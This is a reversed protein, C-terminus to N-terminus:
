SYSRDDKHVEYDQAGVIHGLAGILCPPPPHPEIQSPQQKTVSQRGARLQWGM